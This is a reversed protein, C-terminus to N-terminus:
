KKSVPVPLFNISCDSINILAKSFKAIQLMLVIYYSTTKRSNQLDTFDIHIKGLVMSKENNRRDLSHLMFFNTIDEIYNKLFYGITFKRINKDDSYTPLFNFTWIIPHNNKKKSVINNSAYFYKLEDSEEFKLHVGTAYSKGINIVELKPDALAKNKELIDEFNDYNIKSGDDDAFSIKKYWCLHNNNFKILTFCVELPLIIPKLNNQQEKKDRESKWLTLLIGTLTAIGGIYSGWFDLWDGKILSFFNLISPVIILALTIVIAIIKLSIYKWNTKENM